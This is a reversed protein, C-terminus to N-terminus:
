VKEFIIDFLVIQSLYCIIQKHSYTYRCKYKFVQPHENELTKKNQKTKNKQKGPKGKERMKTRVQPVM